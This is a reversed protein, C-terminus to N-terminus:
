WDRILLDIPVCLAYGLREYIQHERAMLSPVLVAHTMGLDHAYGHMAEILARCAGLRRFEPLTYMRSVYSIKDAATM